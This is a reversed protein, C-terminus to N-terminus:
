KETDKVYIFEPLAHSLYFIILEAVLGDKCKIYLDYLIESSNHATYYEFTENYKEAVGLLYNMAAWIWHSNCDVQQKFHLKTIQEM